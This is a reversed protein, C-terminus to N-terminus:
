NHRRKSSIYKNAIEQLGDPEKLQYMGSTSPLGASYVATEFAMDATSSMFLSCLWSLMM